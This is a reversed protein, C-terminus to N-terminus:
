ELRDPNAEVATATPTHLAPPCEQCLHRHFPALALEAEALVLAAEVEALAPVLVAEADARLAEAPFDAIALVLADEVLGHPVAAVAVAALPATELVVREAPHVGEVVFHGTVVAKWEARELYFLCDAHVQVFAVPPSLNVKQSAPPLSHGRQSHESGRLDGGPVQTTGELVQPPSYVQWAWQVFHRLSHGFSSV